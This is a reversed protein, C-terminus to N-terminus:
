VSTTIKRTQKTQIFDLINSVPRQFKQWKNKTINYINKPISLVRALFFWLIKIKQSIKILKKIKNTLKKLQTVKNEM